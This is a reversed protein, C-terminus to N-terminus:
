HPTTGQEILSQVRNLSAESSFKTDELLSKRAAPLTMLLPDIKYYGAFEEIKGINWDLDDSSNWNESAGVQGDFAKETVESGPNDDSALNKKFQPNIRNFNVIPMLGSESLSLERVLIGEVYQNPVTHNADFLISLLPITITITAVVWLLETVANGHREWLGSRNNTNM